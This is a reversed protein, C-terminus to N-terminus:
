SAKQMLSRKIRFATFPHYNKCVQNFVTRVFDRHDELANLASYLPQLVEWKRQTLLFERIRIAGFCESRLCLLLFALHLQPDRSKKIAFLTDVQALEHVQLAPVLSLYQRQEILSLQANTPPLQKRSVYGEVSQRSDQVRVSPGAKRKINM